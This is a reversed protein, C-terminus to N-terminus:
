RLSASPASPRLSNSIRKIGHRLAPVNFNLLLGASLRTLRLYTLLQAEHIPEISLVSKVEVIVADEVLLDLRLVSALKAGKYVLPVAQQQVFRLQKLELERALAEQYASELLGPGLVRHVEIAAGIIKETLERQPGEADEAGRRHIVGETSTM